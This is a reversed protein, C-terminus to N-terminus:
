KKLMEAFIAADARTLRPNAPQMAPDYAFLLTNPGEAILRLEGGHKVAGIRALEKGPAATPFKRLADRLLIELQAQSRSKGSAIYFFTWTRGSSDFKKLAFRIVQSKLRSGRPATASISFINPGSTQSGLAYAFAPAKEAAAVPSVALTLALVALLPRPYMMM